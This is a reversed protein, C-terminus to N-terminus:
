DFVDDLCAISFGIETSLSGGGVMTSGDVEVGLRVLSSGIVVSFDELLFTLFSSILLRVSSLSDRRFFSISSNDVSDGFVSTLTSFGPPLGSLKKFRYLKIM